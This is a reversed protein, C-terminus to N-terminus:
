SFTYAGIDDYDSESSEEFGQSTVPCPVAFSSTQPPCHSDVNEYEEVPLTSTSSQMANLPAVALRNPEMEGRRTADAAEEVEEQEEEEDTDRRTNEYWECSSTSSSEASIQRELQGRKRRSSLKRPAHQGDESSSSHGEAMRGRRSSGRGKVGFAATRAMGPRPFPERVSGKFTSFDKATRPASNAREENISHPDRNTSANAPPGSVHVNITPPRSDHRPLTASMDRYDNASVVSETRSPQALLMVRRHKVRYHCIILLVLQVIVVIALAGIALFLLVERSASTQNQDMIETSDPVSTVNWHPKTLDLSGTCVVYAQATCNGSALPELCAPLSSPNYFCGSTWLDPVTPASENHLSSANGCGLYACIDQALDWDWTDACLEGWIGDERVGVNGECRNPGGSLRLTRHGSCEVGADEKHGCDHDKWRPGPCAWIFPEDGHCKRQDLYIPGPGQGFASSSPASLATGCGLQQCVVAAEALDWDDDCVTGWQGRWLIEVRGMCRSPGGALRLRRHETCTLHVSLNRDCTAHAPLLTSHCSTWGTEKGSCNLMGVWHPGPHALPEAAPKPEEPEGPPAPPYGAKGCALQRCLVDALPAGWFERCLPRWQGDHLLEVRGSCESSGDRLRVRPAPPTTSPSETTPVGTQGGSLVATTLLTLVFDVLRGSLQM